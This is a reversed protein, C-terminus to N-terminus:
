KRATIAKPRNCLQSPGVYPDPKIKVKLDHEVPFVDRTHLQPIFRTALQAPVSPNGISLHGAFDLISNKLHLIIKIRALSQM